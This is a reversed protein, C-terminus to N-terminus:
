LMAFKEQLHMCIKEPNEAGSKPGTIEESVAPLESRIHDVVKKFNDISFQVKVSIQRYKRYSILFYMVHPMLINFFNLWFQFTEDDFWKIFGAAQLITEDNFKKPIGSIINEFCKRIDDKYEYVTKVARSQFNWRTQSPKEIRHDCVRDLAATRDPSKSFFASIGNINCFFYSVLLLMIYNTELLKNLQHAYCYLLHANKYIEKIKVNVGGVQGRMVAAGDFTQAILKRTFRQLYSKNTAFYMKSLGNADQSEPNAFGWFREHINGNLFYRFVMSDKKKECFQEFSVGVMKERGRGVPLRIRDVQLTLGDNIFFQANSQMIKELMTLLVKTDFQDVRRFSIGVPKDPFNANHLVFGVYDTPEANKLAFHHLEDFALEKSAKDFTPFTITRTKKNPLEDIIQSSPTIKKRLDLPADNSGQQADAPADNSGNPQLVESIRVSCKKSLDLPQESTSVPRVSQAELNGAGDSPVRERGSKIIHEISKCAAIVGEPNLVGSKLIKLISEISLDGFIMIM